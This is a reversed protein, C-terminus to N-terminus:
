GVELFGNIAFVEEEARGSRAPDLYVSSEPVVGQSNLNIDNGRM